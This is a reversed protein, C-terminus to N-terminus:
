MSGGTKKAKKARRYMLIHAIVATAAANGPMIHVAGSAGELSRRGPRPFVAEAQVRVPEGATYHPPLSKSVNFLLSLWSDPEPFASDDGFLRKVALPVGVWLTNSSHVRYLRGAGDVADSGLREIKSLTPGPFRDRWPTRM